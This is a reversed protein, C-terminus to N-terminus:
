FEFVLRAPTRGHAGRRDGRQGRRAQPDRRGGQHPGRRAARLGRRPGARTGVISGIVSIGKLVTPFIPLSMPGDTEPPCASASWGAAAGCRPSPRSSRGAPDRRDRGRRRGASSRSRPSRTPRRPTSPTTPASRGRGARAERRRRRRRGRDRRRAARVPRRPARARRRRLDRGARSPEIHAVKIAKYTTVGACTLPAADLPTSATRCRSSTTPTPSPTSPSRATSRTAATRSSSACRRGAASATTPVPRLRPRALSRSGTASRRDTVGAGVERRHRRGRPGPRVAAHAQGALRRARRPHRHPM